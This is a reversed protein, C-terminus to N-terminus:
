VNTNKFTQIKNKRISIKSDKINGHIIKRLKCKRETKCPIDNSDKTITLRYNNTKNKKREWVM